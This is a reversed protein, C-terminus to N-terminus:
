ASNYHIVITAAVINLGAGAAKPNLILVGPGQHNSFEDVIEQRRVQETTGNIAGWYAEPL